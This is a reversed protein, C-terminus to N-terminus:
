GVLELIEINNDKGLDFYDSAVKVVPKTMNRPPIYVIEGINGNNLKVKSGIYYTLINNIFTVLIKLDLKDYEIDKFEEIAEFPTKRKKYARDSTIADYVDSVAIIKSYLSIEDELMGLPYGSGDRREHHMLIANSIEDDIGPINKSIEYGIRPHEKINNYETQTLPGKKNLIYDPIKLKGVDHLIGSTSLDLLQNENLGLWKGILIAYLAVGISHNYTYEDKDKIMQIYRITYSDNEIEEYLKESISKLEKEEIKKGSVINNLTSKLNVVCEKYVASFSVLRDDNNKEYYLSDYIQVKEVGSNNLKKIIYENLITNKKLLLVNRADYIDSSIVEGEKCKTLHVLKEM